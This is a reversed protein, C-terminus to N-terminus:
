PPTLIEEERDGRPETGHRDAIAVDRRVESEEGCRDGFKHLDGRAVPSPMALRVLPVGTGSADTNYPPIPNIQTTTRLQRGGIGGTM